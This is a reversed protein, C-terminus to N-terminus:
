APRASASSEARMAETLERKLASVLASSSTNRAVLSVATSRFVEEELEILELSWSSDAELMTITTFSVAGTVHVMRLAFALSSTEYIVGLEVASKACERDVERRIGFQSTPLVCLEGDVESLPMQKKGALRHDSRVVLQIPTALAALEHLEARSVRGFTYGVDADGSSITAAVQTSSMMDVRFRVRPHRQRLPELWKPLLRPLMGEVCAIRFETTTRSPGNQLMQKLEETEARQRQVFDYLAMGEATAIMGHPSRDFLTTGLERELLKMQRSLASTAMVLNKSASHISGADVIEQFYRLADSQIAM